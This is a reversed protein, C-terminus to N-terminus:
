TGLGAGRIRKILSPKNGHEERLRAIRAMAEAQRGTRACLDRLDRLLVIAEDYKKPHKTAILGDLQRWAEKERKALVNLRLEREAAEERERRAKERAERKCEQRRRDEAQGEAAELLEGVTRAKTRAVPAESVCSERIQKLVQSQLHTEVGGILRALLDTRQEESLESVWRRLTGNEIAALDPSATAAADILDHDVRLFDAFAELAESLKGLGPPCPPEEEEDDFEGAQAGGLWAIYLARLDGGALDARVPLLSSLMDNDDEIWDGDGEEDESRLDLILHRGAARASFLDGACYRRAVKMPLLSTPLRLMLRHTGWNAMYLFADFYKEMWQTEDGKFNGYSYSNVFRTATIAAHGSYGRLIGQAKDTLPRDIAQFEYYQYESM